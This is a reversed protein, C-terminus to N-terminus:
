AIQQHVLAGRDDRCGPPAIELRMGDTDHRRHEGWVGNARSSINVASRGYTRLGLLRRQGVNLSKSRGFSGHMTIPDNVDGALAIGWADTASLGTASEGTEAFPFSRLRAGSSSLVAAALGLSLTLSFRERGRGEGTKSPMVIKLSKIKVTQMAM